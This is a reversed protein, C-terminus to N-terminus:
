RTLSGYPVGTVPNIGTLKPLRKAPRREPTVDVVRLVKPQVYNRALYADLDRRYFLLRGGDRVVGIEDAHRTLWARSRRLYSMAEQATMLPSAVPAPLPGAM